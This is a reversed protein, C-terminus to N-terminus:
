DHQKAWEIYRYVTGRSGITLSKCIESVTMDGQKYLKYVLKAKNKAENSLGKKRGGLRGRARAATLGVNTREKILNREFDAMAGFIHFVLKGSATSTNISDSLSILNVGMEQFEEVLEILHKLSRGLRDLRYILVTDNKRLKSRLEQLAPRDMKAGSAKEQYLHDYGYKKLADIQSDINQDLTSVRAYAFIM